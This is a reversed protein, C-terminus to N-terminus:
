MRIAYIKFIEAAISPNRDGGEASIGFKISLYGQAEINM